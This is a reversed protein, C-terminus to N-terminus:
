RVDMPSGASVGLVYQSLYGHAGRQILEAFGADCIETAEDTSKGLVKTFLNTGYSRFGDKGFELFWRGIEKKKPDKPWPSTPVKKVVVKVDVFGANLLHGELDQCVDKLGVVAGAERFLRQYLELAGNKPLTGDDSRYTMESEYLQM